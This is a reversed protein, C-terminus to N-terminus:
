PHEHCLKPDIEMYVLEVQPTRVSADEAWAIMAGQTSRGLPVRKQEVFGVKRYFELASNDSRVRVHIQELGLHINSWALLTKLASSMTGPPASDGRVVADAEVYKDDWNIFAIGMYGFTRGNLDDVMFLIRGDDPGVINTLWNETREPTATFETLFSSVYKNRWTTLLRVDNPNVLNQQTAVPRLLARYPQGVTLCLLASRRGATQKYYRLLYKGNAERDIM